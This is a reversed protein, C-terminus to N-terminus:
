NNKNPKNHLQWVQVSVKIQIRPTALGVSGAPVPPINPPRLSENTYPAAVVGGVETMGYVTLVM